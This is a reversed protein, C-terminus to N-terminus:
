RLLDRAQEQATELRELISKAPDLPASATLREEYAKVVDIMSETGAPLTNRTAANGTQSERVIEEFSRTM